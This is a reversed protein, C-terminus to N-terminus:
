YQTSLVRETIKFVNDSSSEGGILHFRKNINPNNQIADVVPKSYRYWEDIRHRIKEPTSTELRPVTKNRETQRDFSTKDCVEFCLYIPVLGYIKSLFDEFVDIEKIDRILGDCFLNQGHKYQSSIEQDWISIAMSAPLLGGSEMIETVKEKTYPSLTKDDKSTIQRFRTGTEVLMSSIGLQEVTETHLMRQTEKGCGPKGLFVLVRALSYFNKLNMKTTM